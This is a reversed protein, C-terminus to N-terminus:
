PSLPSRAPPSAEDEPEGVQDTATVVVTVSVTQGVPDAFAQLEQQFRDIMANFDAIRAAPVKVTRRKCFPQKLASSSPDIAQVARAFQRAVASLLMQVERAREPTHFQESPDCAVASDAVALRYSFLSGDHSRSHREAVLLGNDVLKQLRYRMLEPRQGLLLAAELNTLRTRGRLAQILEGVWPEGLKATSKFRKM